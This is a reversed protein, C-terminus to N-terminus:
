WGEYINTGGDSNPEVVKKSPNESSPNPKPTSPKPNVNSSKGSAESAKNSNNESTKPTENVSNNNPKKENSPSSSSAKNTNSNSTTNNSRDFENNSGTETNKNKKSAIAQQNKKDLLIQAKSLTNTAIDKKSDNLINATQKKLDDLREQNIADKISTKTNDVFLSDISNNIAQYMKFKKDIEAIQSILRDKAKGDSLETVLDTANKITKESVSDAFKKNNNKFFLDAVTQEANNQKKLMKDAVKILDVLEKQKKKNKVDSVEKSAKNLDELKLDDALQRKKVDRFLANVQNQAEKTEKTQVSNNYISYGCVVLGITVATAIAIKLKRKKM